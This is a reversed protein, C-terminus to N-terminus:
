DGSRHPGSSDRLEKPDASDKSFLRRIDIASVLFFIPIIQYLARLGSNDINLELNGKNWYIILTVLASGATTFLLYDYSPRSLLILCLLLLIGLSSYGFATGALNRIWADVYDIFRSADRVCLLLLALLLFATMAHPLYRKCLREAIIHLFLLYLLTAATVLLTMAAFKDSLLSTGYALTTRAYIIHRLYYIYFLQYGASPLFLLAPLLSSCYWANFRSAPKDHLSSQTYPFRMLGYCVFLFCVLAIGDKRLMTVAVSFGCTLLARDFDLPSSGAGLLHSAHDEPREKIGLVFLFFLYFMIWSNSLIWNTFLLFPSCSILLLTFLATYCAAKKVPFTGKAYRYVCVAFAVLLNLIMFGHLPIMTDLGWYTAYAGVLPLFQGINTMVFSNDSVIDKYSMLLTLAKGYDSFYFYSDYNLIIYNYGTSVLCATGTIVAITKLVPLDPKRFPIKKFRRIFLCLLIFASMLFLVRLFRYTFDALLLFESMFCWLCVAAPFALLCVWLGDLRRQITKLFFYGLLYLFLISLVQKIQYLFVNGAALATFYTKNTFMSVTFLLLSCSFFLYPWILGVTHIIRTKGSVKTKM